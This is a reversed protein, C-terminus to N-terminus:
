TLFRFGYRFDIHDPKRWVVEALVPFTLAPGSTPFQVRMRENVQLPRRAVLGIGGPSIDVTLGRFVSRNPRPGPGEDYQLYVAKAQIRRPHIRKEIGSDALYNVQM